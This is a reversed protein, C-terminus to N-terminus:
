QATEVFTARLDRRALDWDFHRELDPRGDPRKASYADALISARFGGDYTMVWEDGLLERWERYEAHNPMIVPRDFSLALMASGSTTAFLTPVVFFDCARLYYQLDADAIYGLDLRIDPAGGCERVLREGIAETFPKGAIVLYAREDTERVTQFCRVLQIHNKYPRIMGLSLGIVRDQPLGLHDRADEGPLGLDPYIGRAHGLPIIRHDAGRLVPYHRVFDDLVTQTGAILVDTLSAFARFFVDVAGLSDTEHAIVNNAHWVIRTGRLKAVQLEAIIRMADLVTVALGRDRTLLWEPWYVYIIDWRQLSFAGPTYDHVEFAADDRLDAFLLPLEPCGGSFANVQPALVRLRDGNAV